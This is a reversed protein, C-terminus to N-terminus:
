AFRTKRGEAEEDVTCGDRLESGDFEGEDSTKGGREDESVVVLTASRSRDKDGRSRKGGEQEKRLVAVTREAM